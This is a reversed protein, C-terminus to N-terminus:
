ESILKYGLGHITIIHKPQNPNIEIKQRLRLIFNDVTRTTPTSEYGWINELLDHRSVSKDRHDLLFKIIDFERVSLHIVQGDEHASYSHFNFMLRGIAIENKEEKDNKEYDSRRLLSKIRALLERLGFPKTVYDDAGMELGLVKDIEESKSTLMIIPTLNGDARLKKLVDFGSMEPLMVDLLILDFLGKGAMEYGLRGTDAIEIEYGEFTLNHKLGASMAAEDEIVLIKTM